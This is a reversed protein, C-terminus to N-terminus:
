AYKKRRPLHRIVSADYPSPGEHRWLPERLQKVVAKAIAEIMSCESRHEAMRCPLFYRNCWCKELSSEWATTCKGCICGDTM